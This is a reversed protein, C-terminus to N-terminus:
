RRASRRRVGYSKAMADDLKGTMLANHLADSVMVRLTSGDREVKIDDGSVRNDIIQVNMANSSSYSGMDYLGPGLEPGGEGVPTLGSNSSPMDLWSNLGNVLPQILRLKILMFAIDEAISRFIDKFKMKLLDGAVIARAIQDAVTDGWGQVVEQMGAWSHAFEMAYTRWKGLFTPMQKDTTRLAPTVLDDSPMDGNMARPTRLQKNMDGRIGRSIESVEFRWNAMGAAADEANQLIRKWWAATDKQLASVDELGDAVGGLGAVATDTAEKSKPGWKEWAFIGAVVLAQIGLLILNSKNLNGISVTLVKFAAALRLIPGTAAALIIAAAATNRLAPDAKALADLMKTLRTMIPGLVGFLKDLTPLFARTFSQVLREAAAKINEIREQFGPLKQSEAGVIKAVGEAVKTLSVNLALAGLAAAAFPRTINRTLSKGMNDWERASRKIKKSAKDWDRQFSKSDTVLKIVVGGVTVSM